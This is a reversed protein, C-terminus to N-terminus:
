TGFTSKKKEYDNQYILTSFFVILYNISSPKGLSVDNEKYKLLIWGLDYCYYVEITLVFYM